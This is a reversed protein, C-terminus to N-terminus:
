SMRIFSFFLTSDAKCDDLILYSWKFSTTFSKFWFIDFSFPYFDANYVFSDLIFADKYVTVSFDRFSTIFTLFSFSASISLTSFANLSLSDVFSLCMISMSYSNSFTRNCLSLNSFSFIVTTLDGLDRAFLSESLVISFNLYFNAIFSYIKLSCIWIKSFSKDYRLCSASLM